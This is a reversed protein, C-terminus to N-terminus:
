KSAKSEDDGILDKLSGKADAKKEDKPLAEIQKKIKDIKKDANEKRKKAKIDHEQIIAEIMEPFHKKLNFFIIEAEAHENFDLHYSRDISGYYAFARSIERFMGLSLKKKLASLIKDEYTHDSLGLKKRLYSGFNYEGRRYMSFIQMVMSDKDKEIPKQNFLYDTKMDFIDTLASTYIKENDLESGRKLRDKVNQIQTKLIKKKNEATSPTAEDLKNMKVHFEAITGASSGSIYIGKKKAWGSRHWPSCDSHNKLIKVGFELAMSIIAESPKGHDAILIIDEADKIIRAVENELHASVKKNFCEDDFCLNEKQFEPFLQPNAQSRKPCVSCSGCGEVLDESSQDFLAEKLDLADDEIAEKIEHATGYNPSGGGWPESSKQMAEQDEIKLKAILVAGGISLFGARFDEKIKDILSNLKMRGLIFSISKSLKASIDEITYKKSDIMSQFANAEELPHVDKRELNEVIMMEFAEDHSLERINAPIEKLKAIKSAKFRREGCVLEYPKKSKSLGPIPRVLIPQLVGHEKISESLEQLSIKDFTKRPNLGSIEIDSIKINKLESM